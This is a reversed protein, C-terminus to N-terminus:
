PNELYGVLAVFTDPNSALELPTLGYEDKAELEAGAAVLELVSETNGHFAARHLRTQGREDKKNVNATLLEIARVVNPNKALERPTEGEEDKAYICAGEKIFWRLTRTRGELAALHAPRRGSRDRAELYAGSCVLFMAVRKRGMYAALHLPTRGERDRADIDAGKSVLFKVMDYHDYHAAQYLPTRGEQDRAEINAGLDLLARATEIQGGYAAWILPTGINWTTPLRGKHEINEGASIFSRVKLTMGVSAAIHLGTSYEWYDNPPGIRTVGFDDSMRM